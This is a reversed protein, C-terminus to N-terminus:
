EVLNTKSTDTTTKTASDESPTWRIADAYIMSPKTAGVVDVSVQGEQLEFAGVWKWKSTTTSPDFEVSWSAREDAIDLKFDSLDGFWHPHVHFDLTWQGTEPLEAVFRATRKGLSGSTNIAITRQFRGYARPEEMQVWLKQRLNWNDLRPLRIDHDDRPMRPFIWDVFGITPRKWVSQPQNVTFGLDLNDVVIGIEEPRWDSDTEYPDPLSQLHLPIDTAHLLLQMPGQNLSLFTDLSFGLFMGISFSDPYVVNIQKTSKPEIVVPKQIGGLWPQVVGTVSQSNYVDFSIQHRQRGDEDDSIRRVTLTSIAFGPLKTSHLWETLFPDVAVGHDRASVLLDEHTYNRGSFRERLSALWNTVTEPNDSHYQLLGIAIKTSKALAVELDAKHRRETSLESSPTNEMHDWVFDRDLHIANQHDLSIASRSYRTQADNAMYAGLMTTPILRMATYPTFARSEDMPSRLPNTNEILVRVIENLIEARKETASTQHTWIHVPLADLVNDPALSNRFFFEFAEYRRTTEDENDIAIDVRSVSFGREKLIVIGPLATLADMRNGGGVTRLRSSAEVVSLSDRPFGLGLADMETLFNELKTKLEELVDTPLSINRSHRPYLFLNFKVGQVEFESRQFDGAFLGLETVPVRTKLEFWRRNNNSMSPVDPGVLHWSPNTLDVKLDLDFHDYRSKTSGDSNLMTGPQPYWYAGPMLAVFNRRYVTGDIGLYKTIKSPLQPKRAYEVASDLYAFQPNPKGSATVQMSHHLNPDFETPLSIELIGNEFSFPVELGDLEIAAIRMGPNFTFILSSLPNTTHLGFQIRLNMTLKDRPNIVVLGSVEHVDLEGEWTTARQANRWASAQNSQYFVTASALTAAAVGLVLCGGIWPLSRRASIEDKRPRIWAALIALAAACAIWGIRIALISTSPVEPVVDSIFMTENSSPSILQQYFYPTHVLVLLWAFAASVACVVTVSRLRCVRELFVVFSCWFLLTAPVDVVLLNLISHVQLTGAFDFKLAQAFLGFGQMSLVTLTTILWLLGAIALIRGVVFELNHVPRSFLAEDIRNHRHRHDTDFLLLLAAIQFALFFTPDINELLYLPTSSVFSASFPAINSQVICSFGYAVLPFLVLPPLILWTRRLRLVVLLEAVAVM